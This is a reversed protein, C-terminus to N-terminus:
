FRDLFEILGDLGIELEALAIRRILWFMLGDHLLQLMGYCFHKICQRHLLAHHNTQSIIEAHAIFFDCLDNITRDIRNFRAHEMRSALQFGQKGAM